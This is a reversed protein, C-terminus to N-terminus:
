FFIKTWFYRAVNNSGYIVFNLKDKLFEFKLIVFGHELIGGKRFTYVYIGLGHMNHSM